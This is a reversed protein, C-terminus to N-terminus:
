QLAEAAAVISCVVICVRQQTAHANVTDVLMRWETLRTSALTLDGCEHHFLVSNELWWEVNHANTMCMEAYAIIRSPAALITRRL